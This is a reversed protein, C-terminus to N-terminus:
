AVQMSDREHHITAPAKGFDRPLPCGEEILLPKIIAYHHVAHSALFVLERSPTSATVFREAGDLGGCLLVAITDPIADSASFKWLREIVAAFRARAVAVDVEVTGDRRREDYDLVREGMGEFFQEYHEILHRFHPGVGTGYRAARDPASFWNLLVLAQELVEVNYQAVRAILDRSHM